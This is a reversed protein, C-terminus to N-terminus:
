GSQVRDLYKKYFGLNKRKRAWLQFNKSILDAKSPLEKIKDLMSHKQSKKAEIQHKNTENKEEISQISLKKSESECSRILDELKMESM